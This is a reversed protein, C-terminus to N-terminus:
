LAASCIGGVWERSGDTYGLRWLMKDADFAGVTGRVLQMEGSEDSAAAGVGIGVGAGNDAGDGAGNDGSNGAQAETRARSRSARVAVAAASPPRPTADKAVTAGVANAGIAATFAQLPRWRCVIMQRDRGVGVSRSFLKLTDVLSHVKCREAQTLSSPLQLDSARDSTAYTKVQELAWHLMSEAAAQADAAGDEAGDGEDCAEGEEGDADAGSSGVAEDVQSMVQPDFSGGRAAGGVLRVGDRRRRCRRGPPLPRQQHRYTAARQPRQADESMEDESEESEEGSEDDDDQESSDESEQEDESVSNLPAMAPQGDGAVDDAGREPAIMHIRLHAWADAAGYELQRPTLVPAEWCRHDIAKDLYMGFLASVMYSLEHSPLQLHKVSDVLELGGNFADAGVDFRKAFRKEDGGVGLSVKKTRRSAMLRAFSPFLSPWVSVQLRLSHLANTLMCAQPQSLCQLQSCFPMVKFIFAKHEDGVLQVTAAKDSNVGSGDTYAINEADFGLVGFQSLYTCAEDCQEETEVVITTGPFLFEPKGDGAWVAATLGLGDKAPNDCTAAEPSPHQWFAAARRHRRHADLLGTDYMSCSETNAVIAAQGASNFVTWRWKLLEAGEFQTRAFRKGHHDGAVTDLVINQESWKLIYPLHTEHFTTIVETIYNDSISSIGVDYHSVDEAPTGLSSPYLPPPHPLPLPYFSLHPSSPLHPSSHPPPPGALRQLQYFSLRERAHRTTRFERFMSELDHSSQATRAARSIVMLAEISIGAKHTLVAPLATAIGPYREFVYKNILPNLTTSMYHFSKIEEDLEKIEELLGAAVEELELEGVAEDGALAEEATAEDVEQSFEEALDARRAKLAEKRAKCASCYTRRGALYFDDFVDKVRRMRWEGLTVHGAHDYGENACPTAIGWREYSWFKIPKLSFATADGCPM